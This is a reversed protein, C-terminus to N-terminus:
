ECDGSPQAELQCIVRKSAEIQRESKAISELKADVKATLKAVGEKFRSIDRTKMYIRFGTYGAVPTGVATAPVGFLWFMVSGSIPSRGPSRAAKIMGLGFLTLLATPVFFITTYRRSLEAKDLKGEFTKLQGRVELLDNKKVLLEAYAQNLRARENSLQEERSPDSAFAPVITLLAFAFLTMLNIITKM